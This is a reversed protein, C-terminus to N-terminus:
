VGMEPNKDKKTAGFVRYINQAQLWSKLGGNWLKTLCVGTLFYDSHGGGGGGRPTAGCFHFAKM